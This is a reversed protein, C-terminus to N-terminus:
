RREAVIPFGDPQMGKLALLFVVRQYGLAKLQNAWDDIVKEAQGAATYHILIVVGLQREPQQRAVALVADRKLISLFQGETTAPKRVYSTEDTYYHIILNAKEQEYFRAM